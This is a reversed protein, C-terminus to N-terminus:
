NPRGHNRTRAESPASRNNGHELRPYARATAPETQDSGKATWRQQHNEAQPRQHGTRSLAATHGQLTKGDVIRTETM